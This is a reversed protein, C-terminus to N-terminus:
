LFGSFLWFSSIAGVVLMRLCPFCFLGAGIRGHVGSGPCRRGRKIFDLIRGFESSTGGFMLGHAEVASLSSLRSMYMNFQM